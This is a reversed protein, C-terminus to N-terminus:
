GFADSLYPAPGGQWRVTPSRSPRCGSSQSCRGVQSSCSDSGSARDATRLVV